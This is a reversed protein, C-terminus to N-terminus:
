RGGEMSFQIRGYEPFNPDNDLRAIELDGLEIIGFDLDNIVAVAPQQTTGNETDLQNDVIPEFQRQFRSAKVYLVGPVTHAAAVLRSLRVDDGFSLNDPHFLAPRGNALRRNSFLRMLDRKVQSRLFHPLVCVEFAIDLPVYQALAVRVDHGIRRYTTLHENINTLLQAVATEGQATVAALPDITVLVETWSGTWRFAAAAKQVQSDFDRQVIEAYDNPTIARELRRRFTHPAYLKVEAMTEPETGGVAPFPNYPSWKVGKILQQSVVHTISEAGVNGQIGNGVRYRATLQHHAPPKMGLRGDGFRLRARGENDIEAVVHPDTSLSALLDRQVRWAIAQDELEEVQSCFAQSLTSTLLLQPLALRPDQRLMTTAPQVGPYLQRHTMGSKRLRPAIKGAKLTMDAPQNIGDCSVATEELPVCWPPDGSHPEEVWSGHDVLLMNGRAISVNELLRCDPAPGVTSLCLSFPLADAVDWSIELVATQDLPDIRQVPDQHLRVVHRRAPNADAPSGTQPSLVEEFLLLDGKKLNLIRKRTYSISGKKKRQKAQESVGQEFPKQKQDLLTAATAGKPLYCDGNGWTYIIIENHDPYLTIPANDPTFPQFLESATPPLANFQAATLIRGNEPLVGSLGTAFTVEDPKLKSKTDTNIHLWTRANCGEHMLYDVLRAHRRVSIRQRATGLYAETAVADQYYSLYDGAYALLEVLAIGLDPIHREQWDPMLVALRDLILQRFSAYDKALYNIQPADPTEPECSETEACDLDSPCLVAFSFEACYYRPDFAPFIEGTLCGEKDTAMLCLTYTTFDGTKNLRVELCDDIDPEASKKIKHSVATLGTVRRGGKIVINELTIKEPAKEFLFVRLTTEDVVDIYDIGNLADHKFLDHRRQEHGCILNTKM